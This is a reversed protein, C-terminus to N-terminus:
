APCGGTLCIYQFKPIYHNWILRQAPEPAASSFAILFLAIFSKRGRRRSAARSNSNNTQLGTAGAETMTVFRGFRQIVGVEGETIRYFSSYLGILIVLILAVLGLSVGSGGMFSKLRRLIEEPDPPADKRRWPNERDDNDWAM